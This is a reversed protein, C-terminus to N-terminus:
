ILAATIASKVSLAAPLVTYFKDKYYGRPGWLHNEPLYQDASGREYVAKATTILAPFILALLTLSM